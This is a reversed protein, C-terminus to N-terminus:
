VQTASAIAAVFEMDPKLHWLEPEAVDGAGDVAAVILGHGRSLVCIGLAWPHLPPLEWVGHSVGDMALARLEVRDNLRALIWLIGDNSLAIGVLEMETEPQMTVVRVPELRNKGWPCLSVVEGFDTTAYFAWPWVVGLPACVSAAADGEVAAIARLNFDASVGLRWRRAVSGNAWRSTRELVAAGGAEVLFLREGGM